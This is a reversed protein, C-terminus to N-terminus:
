VQRFGLFARRWESATPGRPKFRRIRRKEEPLPLAARVAGSFAAPVRKAGRRAIYAEIEALETERNGRGRM